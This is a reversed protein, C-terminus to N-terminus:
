DHKKVITYFLIARNITPIKLNPQINQVPRTLKIESTYDAMGSTYLALFKQFNSMGKIM